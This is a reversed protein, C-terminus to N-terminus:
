PAATPVSESTWPPHVLLSCNLPWARQFEESLVDTDIARLLVM